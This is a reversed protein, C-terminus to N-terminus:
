EERALCDDIQSILSNIKHRIELADSDNMPRSSILEDAMQIAALIALKSMSMDPFDRKLNRIRTDVLEAVREMHQSSTSARLTYTKDLIRVKVTSKNEATSTPM